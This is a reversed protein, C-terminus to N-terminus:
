AALQRQVWSRVMVDWVFGVLERAVAAVAVCPKKNRQALARYRGHLRREARVSVEQVWVAQRARLERREATLGVPRTQHWAAEVLLRRVRRNGAKTLSGRRQREGSSNESPVLGLFAMLERPSGFREVQYLEVCLAMATLEGIGRLCRLAEVVERYPETLALEHIRQDVEALKEEAAWAERRLRELLEQELGGALQLRALWTWHRKTWRSAEWNVGRRQLFALLRQRARQREERLAERFRLLDRAAEQEPTPPAVEKLMGARLQQALKAADRRDTKVRDGPARQVFAPAIVRCDVGAASLERHVQYGCPGAEYCCVLGGQALGQLRAALEALPGSANM